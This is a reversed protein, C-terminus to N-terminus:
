DSDEFVQDILEDDTGPEIYELSFDSDVTRNVLGMRSLLSPSGASLDSGDDTSSFSDALPHSEVEDEPSLDNIDLLGLLDPPRQQYSRKAQWWYYLIQLLIIVEQTFVALYPVWVGWGERQLFGQYIAVALAGPAQLLLMLVSLSGGSKLRYVSYIQPLWILFTSGISIVGLFDAFTRVSAHGSGLSQPLLTSVMILVICIVLYCLFVIVDFLYRHRASRGANLADQPTCSTLYKDINRPGYPHFYIALAYMPLLNVFGVLLQYLELLIRQCQAFPVVTCCSYLDWENVVSFLVVTLSSINSLLLMFLSVGESTKSRIISVHQPMYSIFIGVTLVAGLVISGVANEQPCDEPLVMIIINNIIGSTKKNIFFFWSFVFPTVSV